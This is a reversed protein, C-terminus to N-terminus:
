MLKLRGLPGQEGTVQDILSEEEPGISICTKTPEKWETLASDIILETPIGLSKAKEYILLLEAENEVRLVIKRFNGLFWELQVPTLTFSVKREADVNKLILKSFEALVAHGAQGMKKGVRCPLDHRWVIVQKVAM